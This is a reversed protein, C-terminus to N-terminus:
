WTLGQKAEQTLTIQADYLCHLHLATNKLEQLVRYHLPTPLIAPTMSTMLGITHALQWVTTRQADFLNTCQSILSKFKEVTVSLTMKKSNILFGM